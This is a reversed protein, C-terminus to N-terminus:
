EVIIFPNSTTQKRKAMSGCKDPPNDVNWYELLLRMKGTESLAFPLELSEGAKLVRTARLSGVDPGILLTNWRNGPNKQVVFPYPTSQTEEGAISTQGIEMCVTIPKNGRNAVTAVIREHLKYIKPSVSVRAQANIIDATFFTLSLVILRALKM